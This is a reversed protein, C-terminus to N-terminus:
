GQARKVNQLHPGTRGPPSKEEWEYGQGRPKKLSDKADGELGQLSPANRSVRASSTARCKKGQIIRRGGQSSPIGKSEQGVGRLAFTDCYGGAIARAAFSHGKPNRGKKRRQGAFGRKSM